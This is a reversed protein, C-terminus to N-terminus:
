FWQKEISDAICIWNVNVNYPAIIRSEVVKRLHRMLTDTSTGKEVIMIAHSRMIMRGDPTRVTYKIKYKQKNPM